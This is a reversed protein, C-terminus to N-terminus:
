PPRVKMLDTTSAQPPATHGRGHAGTPRCLKDLDFAVRVRTIRGDEIHLRGAVPFPEGDRRSRAREGSPEARGAGSREREDM